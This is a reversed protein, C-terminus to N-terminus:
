SVRHLITSFVRFIKRCQSLDQCFFRLKSIEVKYEVIVIKVTHKSHSSQYVKDFKEIFDKKLKFNIMCIINQMTIAIGFPIDPLCEGFTEDLDYIAVILLNCISVSM